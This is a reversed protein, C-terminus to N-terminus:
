VMIGSSKTQRTVGHLASRYPQGASRCSAHRRLLPMTPSTGETTHALTAINHPLTVTTPDRRLANVNKVTETETKAPAATKISEGCPSEDPDMNPGPKNSERLRSLEIRRFNPKSRTVSRVKIIMQKTPIRDWTRSSRLAPPSTSGGGLEQSPSWETGLPLPNATFRPVVEEPGIREVQV